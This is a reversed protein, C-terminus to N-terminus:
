HIWRRLDAGRYGAAAWLHELNCFSEGVRELVVRAGERDALDAPYVKSKMVLGGTDVLLHRKRGNVKNKARDYGRAGV